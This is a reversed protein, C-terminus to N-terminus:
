LASDDDDGAAEGCSTTGADEDYLCDLGQDACDEIEAYEYTDVCENRVTDLCDETQDYDCYPVPCGMTFISSGVLLTLVTVALLKKM